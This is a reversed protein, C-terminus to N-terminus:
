VVPADAAGLRKKIRMLLADRMSRYANLRIERNGEVGSPDPTPWHEVEASLTRTLEEVKGRAEPSLSVVLDFSTDLLEDFSRSVHKELDIGLEDMAEIAFHDPEGARVGVSEVYIRDGFLHKAILEAMPSRITNNTCAFLVSRPAGVM